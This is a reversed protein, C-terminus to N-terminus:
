AQLCEILKLEDLDSINCVNEHCFEGFKNWFYGMIALSAAKYRNTLAAM